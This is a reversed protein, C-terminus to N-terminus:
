IEDQIEEDFNATIHTHELVNQQCWNKFKFYNDKFFFKMVIIGILIVAICVAQTICIPVYMNKPVIEVIETENEM